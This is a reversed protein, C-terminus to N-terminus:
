YESFNVENNLGVYPVSMKAQDSSCYNFILTADNIMQKTKKRSIIADISQSFKGFKLIHASRNKVRAM